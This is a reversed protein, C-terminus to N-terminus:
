RKKRVDRTFGREALLAPNKHKRRPRDLWYRKIAIFTPQVDFMSRGVNFM